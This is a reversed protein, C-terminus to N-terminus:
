HSIFSPRDYPFCKSVFKQIWEMTAPSEIDVKTDEKPEWILEASELKLQLPGELAESVEGTQTPDTYIVTKDGNVEVDLAGAEFAAELIREEDVAEPEVINESQKWVDVDQTPSNDFVIRGKREFMYAIPTVSGGFAKVAERVSNLTRQRSDTQCEVVAAVGQPM